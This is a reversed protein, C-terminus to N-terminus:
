GHSCPSALSAAKMQPHGPRHAPPPLSPAPGQPLPLQQTQGSSECVDHYPLLFLCDPPSPVLCPCTLYLTPSSLSQPVLHTKRKSSSTPLQPSPQAYSPWSLFYLSIKAGAWGIAEGAWDEMGQCAAARAYQCPWLWHPDSPLAAAGASWSCVSHGCCLAPM